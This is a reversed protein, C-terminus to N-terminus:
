FNNLLEIYDNLSKFDSLDGDGIVYSVFDLNDFTAKVLYTINEKESRDEKNLRYLDEENFLSQIDDLTSAALMKQEKEGAIERGFVTNGRSDVFVRYLYNEGGKIRNIEIFTLNGYTPNTVGDITEKQNSTVEKADALKIHKVVRTGIIILVGVIFITFFIRRIKFIKPELRKM